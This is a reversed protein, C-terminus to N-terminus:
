DNLESASLMISGDLGTMTLPVNLFGGVSVETTLLEADTDVEM